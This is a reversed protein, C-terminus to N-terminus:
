PALGEQEVTVRESSLLRRPELLPILRGELEITGAPESARERGTELQEEDLRVTRGASTVAVGVPGGPVEVLAALEPRTPAPGEIGLFERVDVITVIEGRHNTLGLVHEPTHPIPTLDGVRAFERVEGLPVAVTASGIEVLVATEAREAREPAVQTTLRQQRRDLEEREAEGFDRFLEGPTVEPPEEPAPLAALQGVDLIEVLGDPARATARLLGGEDESRVLDEEGLSVVEIVNAVVLGLREDDVDLDLLRHDLTYPAPSRGLAVDLDLVGVEDEQLRAVGIHGRQEPTTESLVPLWVIQRVSETPVAYRGSNTEVLVHPQRPSM